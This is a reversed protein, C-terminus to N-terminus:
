EFVVIHLHPLGNNKWVRWESHVPVFMWAYDHRHRASSHFDDFLSARSLRV